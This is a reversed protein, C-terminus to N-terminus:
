RIEKNGDNKRRLIMTVILLISAFVFTLVMARLPTRDGTKVFRADKHSSVKSYTDTINVSANQQDEVIAKGDATSYEIKVNYGDINANSETVTYQGPAVTLTKSYTGDENKTLDGLKVTDVVNGNKDTVTFTVDKLAEESVDGKVTKTYTLTGQQKTYTDTIDVSAIQQDKITAKGEATSYEIKVNYGSVEANSETVTYEGPAVTLTKSYTGDENKTLDSLKATDVVNGDKDTVKFTVDKLAEESVDGKVVKTYTLTGQKPGNSFTPVSGKSLASGNQDYYKVTPILTTATVNNISQTYATMVIKAMFYNDDYRISSDTGANEFIKFWYTGEKTLNIQDFSVSGDAGNSVTQQLGGATVTSGSQDDVQEATFSFEGEKLPLGGTMQKKAALMTGTKTTRVVNGGTTNEIISGAPVNSFDVMFSVTVSTSGEIAKTNTVSLSDYTQGDSNTKSTDTVTFYDNPDAYLFRVYPNLDDTLNITGAEFGNNNWFTLTYRVHQDGKESVSTKSVSKTGNSASNNNGMLIHDREDQYTTGPQDTKQYTMRVNNVYRVSSGADAKVDYLIEVAQTLQGKFTVTMTKGDIVLSYDSPDVPGIVHNRDIYQLTISDTNVFTEGDPITDKVTVDQLSEQNGNVYVRYSIVKDSSSDYLAVQAAGGNKEDGYDYGGWYVGDTTYSDKNLRYGLGTGGSGSDETNEANVTITKSDNGVSITKQGTESTTVFMSFSGSLASEANPGFVLRYTGDGNDVVEKFHQQNVSMRVGAQYMDSPISVTIYDGEKVSNQDITYDVTYMATMGSTYSDSNSEIVSHFHSSADAAAAAARRVVPVSQKVVPQSVQEDTQEEASTEQQDEAPVADQSVSSEDNNQSEEKEQEIILSLAEKGVQVSLSDADTQGITGLITFSGNTGTEEAKTFTLLYGGDAPDVAFTEETNKFSVNSIGDPITVSLTEGEEVDSTVSYDATVTFSQGAQYSEQDSSLTLSLKNDASEKIEDSASAPFASLAVIM